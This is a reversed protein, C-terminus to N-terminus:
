AGPARYEISVAPGDGGPTSEGITVEATREGLLAHWTALTYKGPPVRGIAFRGAADTVAFFPSPMVAIQSRMWPHVDCRAEIFEASKFKLLKFDGANALGFNLSGNYQSVYHTNHFVPDSSGVRLPQNIQVAAVHPVYRCNVQDLKVEPQSSGDSAPATKLWVVVNALGGGEGVVVTEEQLATAGAHCTSNDIMKREPPTGVFLVRGGVAATGFVPPPLQGAPVAPGNDCGAAALSVIVLSVACLVANRRARM